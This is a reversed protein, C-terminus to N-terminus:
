FGELQKKVTRRYFLVMLVLLRYSLKSFLSRNSKEGSASNNFGHRRYYLLKEDLFKVRGNLEVSLGIWLDHLPTVM